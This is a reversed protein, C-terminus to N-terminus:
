CELERKRTLVNDSGNYSAVALELLSFVDEVLWSLLCSCICGTSNLFAAYNIVDNRTIVKSYARIKTLFSRFINKDVKDENLTM